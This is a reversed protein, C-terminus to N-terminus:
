GGNLKTILSEYFPNTARNYDESGHWYNPGLVIKVQEYEAWVKSARETPTTGLAKHIEAKKRSTSGMINENRQILKEVIYPLVVMDLKQGNCLKHALVLNWLKDHQLVQRPLVHDVESVAMPLSCYFCVNAQFPALFPKLHTLSKRNDGDILYMERISNALAIDHNSHRVHFSGELMGWRAESGAVLNDFDENAIGLLADKIILHSGFEVEYFKDAALSASTGIINHFRPVVDVFGDKAVMDVAESLALRGVRLQKIIRELKTQRGMIGQQPMANSDLRASYIDLFDKALDQWKIITRGENAAKLLCISLAPKYTATNLGFHVIARWYDIDTFNSM